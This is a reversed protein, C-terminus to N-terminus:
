KDIFGLLDPRDKNEEDSIYETVTARVQLKEGCTEIYKQYDPMLRSILPEDVYLPQRM